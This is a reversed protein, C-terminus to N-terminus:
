SFLLASLKRRSASVLPDAPGMADFFRLLEARAAGENWTRNIRISELLTDIAAVRDQAAFQAQALEIRAAHDEPNAAIKAMLAAFAGAPKARSALDYATQAAGFAPQKKLDDPAQDILERAQDMEGAAVMVRVLGVYAAVAQPDHAFVAAYLQQASAFDQAALAADAQAMVAAVDMEDPVTTGAMKALQDVLKRIEGAPQAGAFGTVPQGQFMAIVTPVSQVRFAQALQPNEDINIKALMVAGRAERVVQEIVPTLQECPGCWPAWFDVLVPTQMSAKIVRVEFDAMTVDYVPDGAADAGAAVPQAPKQFGILTM